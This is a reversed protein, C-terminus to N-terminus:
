NILEGNYMLFFPDKIYYSTGLLQFSYPCKPSSEASFIHSISYVKLFYMLTNFNYYKTYIQAISADLIYKCKLLLIM